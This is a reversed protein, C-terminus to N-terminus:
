HDPKEIHFFAFHIGPRSQTDVSLKLLNTNALSELEIFDHPCGFDDGVVAQHGAEEIEPPQSADSGVVM